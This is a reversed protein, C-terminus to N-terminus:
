KIKTALKNGISNFHSNIRNVIDVNRRIVEGNEDKLSNIKKLKTILLKM